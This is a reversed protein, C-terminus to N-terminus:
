LEKCVARLAAKPAELLSFFFLSVQGQEPVWGTAWELVPPCSQLETAPYRQEGKKM